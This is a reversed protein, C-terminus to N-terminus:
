KGKGKNGRGQSLKSSSSGPGSSGYGRRSQSRSAQPTQFNQTYGQPYYPHQYPQPPTFTQSLVRHSNCGQKLIRILFLVLSAGRRDERLFLFNRCVTPVSRRRIVSSAVFLADEMSVVEAAGQLVVVTPAGVTRLVRPQGNGRTGKPPKGTM